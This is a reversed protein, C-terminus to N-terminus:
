NSLSSAGLIRHSILIVMRGMPNIMGHHKCFFYHLAMHLGSESAMLFHCLSDGSVVFIGMSEKNKRLNCVLSTFSHSLTMLNPIVIDKHLKLNVNQFTVVGWISWGHFIHLIHWGCSLNRPCGQSNLLIQNNGHGGLASCLKPNPTSCQMKNSDNSQNLDLNSLLTSM